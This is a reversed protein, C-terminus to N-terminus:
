TTIPSIRTKTIRKAGRPSIGSAVGSCWFHCGDIKEGREIQLAADGEDGAAGPSDAAGADLAQLGIARGDRQGADGADLIGGGDQRCEFPQAAQGGM